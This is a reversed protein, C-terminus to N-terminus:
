RYAELATKIRAARSPDASRDMTEILRGATEVLSRVTKPQEVDTATLDYDAANRRSRLTGLKHGAAILDADGSNGLYRLVEGHSAANRAIPVGWIRLMAAAVNFAAYYARGVACRLDAPKGGACLTVALRQFDRPDM